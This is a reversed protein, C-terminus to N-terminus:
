DHLVLDLKNHIKVLLYLQNESHFWSGLFREKKLSHSISNLIQDMMDLYMGDFFKVEHNKKIAKYRLIKETKVFSNSFKFKLFADLNLITDLIVNRPRVLPYQDYM